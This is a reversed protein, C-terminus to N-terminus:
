KLFSYLVKLFLHKHDWFETVPKYIKKIKTSCCQQKGFYTEVRQLVMQKQFRNKFYFLFYYELELFM